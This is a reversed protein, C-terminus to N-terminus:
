NSVKINQVSFQLYFFNCISFQSMYAEMLHNHLTQAHSRIYPIALNVEYVMASATIRLLLKRTKMTITHQTHNTMFKNTKTEKKNQKRNQCNSHIIFYIFIGFGSWNAGM